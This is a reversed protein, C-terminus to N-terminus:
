QLFFMMSVIDLLRAMKMRDSDWMGDVGRWEVDKALSEPEGDGEWAHEWRSARRVRGSSCCWMLSSAGRRRGDCSSPPGISLEGHRRRGGEM